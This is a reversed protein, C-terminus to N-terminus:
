HAAPGCSHVLLPRDSRDSCCRLTGSPTKFARHAGCCARGTRRMESTCCAVASNHGCAGRQPAEVEAQVRAGPLVAHLRLQLERHRAGAQQLAVLDLGGCTVVAYLLHRRQRLRVQRRAESQVAPLWRPAARGLADVPGLQLDRVVGCEHRPQVAVRSDRACPAEAIAVADPGRRQPEACGLARRRLADAQWTVGPGVAARRRQLRDVAAHVAARIGPPAHVAGAEAM